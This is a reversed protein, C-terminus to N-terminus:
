FEQTRPKKLFKISWRNYSIFEFQVSLTCVTYFLAYSFHIPGHSFCITDYLFSVTGHSFNTCVKCCTLLMHSFYLQHLLLFNYKPNKGKFTTWTHIMLCSWPNFVEYHIKYVRTVCVYACVHCSAQWMINENKIEDSNWTQSYLGVRVVVM